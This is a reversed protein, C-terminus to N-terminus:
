LVCRENRADILRKFEPKCLLIVHNQLNKFDYKGDVEM